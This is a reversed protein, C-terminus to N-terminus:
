EIPSDFHFLCKLILVRSLNHIKAAYVCVFLIIDNSIENGRTVNKVTNSEIRELRSFLFKLCVRM